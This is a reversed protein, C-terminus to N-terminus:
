LVASESVLVRQIAVIHMLVSYYVSVIYLLEYVIINYQNYYVSVIYLLEYVIIISYNYQNYICIANCLLYVFYNYSDATILSHSLCSLEPTDQM